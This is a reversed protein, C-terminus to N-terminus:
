ELAEKPAIAVINEIGFYDFTDSISKFSPYDPHTELQLEFTKNDITYNSLKLYKNAINAITPKM